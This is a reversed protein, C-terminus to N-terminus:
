ADVKNVPDWLLFHLQLEDKRPFKGPELLLYEHFGVLGAEKITLPVEVQTRSVSEDIEPVLGSEEEAWNTFRLRRPGEGVQAMDCMLDKMDRVSSTEKVTVEMVEAEEKEDDNISVKNDHKVKFRVKVEGKKARAGIELNLTSGDEVKAEDLTLNEDVLIEGGM